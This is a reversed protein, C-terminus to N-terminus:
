SVAALVPEPRGSRLSAEIAHAVAVDAVADAVDVAIPTGTRIARILHGIEAALIGDAVGDDQEVWRTTDPYALNEAGAIRLGQDLGHVEIRGATGLMDIGADLGPGFWAPLVWSLELTFPTSDDFRGLVLISDWHNISALLRTTGHAMVETIRRGTIWQMLDIDHIGLHWVLSTTSGYHAAAGIASNRRAKLHVLEGISGAHLARRAQQYRPDFRLLHGVLFIRGRAAAAISRADAIDTAIPKELLVALGRACAAEAADRHLADPLCVSVADLDPMALADRWDAHCPIGFHREVDARTDADTDAMAVVSVGAIDGYARAHRQGMLGAGIIVVRLPRSAAFDAQM